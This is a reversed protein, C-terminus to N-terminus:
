AVYGLVFGVAFLSPLPFERALGLAVGLARALFKM